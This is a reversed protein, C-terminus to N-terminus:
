SKYLYNYFEEAYWFLYIGFLTLLVGFIRLIILLKKSPSKYTVHEEFEYNPKMTRYAGFIWLKYILDPISLLILGIIILPISLLGFTEPSWDADYSSINTLLYYTM